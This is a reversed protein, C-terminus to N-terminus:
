VFDSDSHCIWSVSFVRHLHIKAVFAAV